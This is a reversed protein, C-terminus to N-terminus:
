KEQKTNRRSLQELLGDVGNRRIQSAFNSRYNTVLSVGDISVDQVLWQQENRYLDYHIPIAQGTSTEIETRVTVETAGPKSHLPLYRITQNSYELLATSYTRIILNRFETVFRERQENNTRRWHKGLVWRSMKEFDIHPILLEDLVLYLHAPDLDIQQRESHIRSMIQDSAQRVLQQPNDSTQAWTQGPALLSAFLCFLAINMWAPLPM